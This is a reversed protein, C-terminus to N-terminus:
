NWYSVHDFDLDLDITLLFGPELRKGCFYYIAFILECDFIVFCM